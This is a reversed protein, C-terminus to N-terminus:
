VAAHFSDNNGAEAERNYNFPISNYSYLFIGLIYGKEICYPATIWRWVLNRITTSLANEFQTCSQCQTFPSVLSWLDKRNQSIDLLIDIATSEYGLMKDLYREMNTCPVNIGCLRAKTIINTVCETINDPEAKPEYKFNLYRQVQGNKLQM